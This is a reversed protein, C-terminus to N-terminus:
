PQGLRERHPQHDRNWSALATDSDDSFLFDLTCAEVHGDCFVVNLDGSHRQKIRDTSGALETSSSLRGFIWTGDQFREKWGIVGDGVAILRSPNRVESESVPRLVEEVSTFGLGLPPATHGELGLANYGYLALEGSLSPPLAQRQASPCLYVSPGKFPFRDPLPGLGEDKMSRFFMTGHEAAFQSRSPNLGLPFVAHTSVFNNLSIGYQRLNSKCQASVAKSKAKSVVVMTMSTLIAIVAVVTLVEM